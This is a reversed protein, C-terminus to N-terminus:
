GSDLYVLAHQPLVRRPQFSVEVIRMTGGCEACRATPSPRTTQPVARCSALYFTWGLFLWVLWKVEDLGIRCNPRMWGYYRIKQFGGPLTHQVFGRVFEEGSVTRTKSRNSGWPTYRFTVSSDDCSGTTASRSYFPVPAISNPVFHATSNTRGSPTSHM